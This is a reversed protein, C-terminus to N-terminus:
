GEAERVDVGLCRAVVGAQARDVILGAVDEMMVGDLASGRVDVGRLRMGPFRADTLDCERFVVEKMRSSDFDTGRLVCREFRVRELTAGFWTGLDIRCETLVVDRLLAGSVDGGTLRCERLTSDRVVGDVLRTSAMDCSVLTSERVQIGTLDGKALRAGRVACRELRVRRESHAWDVVLAEDLSAGEPPTWGEVRSLGTEDIM